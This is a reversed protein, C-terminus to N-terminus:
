AGPTAPGSGDTLVLGALDGRERWARLVEFFKMPGAPYRGGLFRKPDNPNGEGNNYGPTCEAMFAIQYPTWGSRITRVWEEEAEVSAEVARADRQLIRGLTWGLHEAQELLAHTLNVAIGTQTVGIFFCNPFGHAHMGHFTRLGDAWRESLRLGDRGVLDFGTARTYGTGIDFGTALVLCDLEYAVGDVIAARETIEQVGLGGTDVLTVNPRNFSELYEDHFGARKCQYRYYPMLGEATAPDRVVRRIRERIENMARLDAEEVAAVQEPAPSVGPGSGPWDNLARYLKTWGDDVEDRDPRDGSTWQTFNEMRRRQWGPEFNRGWGAPTPRNDRVGVTSPTRQFVYLHQAGRGLHPVVQLSTAGTGIIGVRKDGLGVLGGHTDGGSYAYDWRSTHFMQGRFREIGPIAPVRPRQLGGPAMVLFRADIRDGRDTSVRWRATDHHWVAGTIETQFLAVDYLSHHRAIRRLHEFIEPQHSYREQPIYGTEELYPLYISAEVDCQAGPYRNWYWTGGFDGAKDIVRFHTLGLARLQAAVLIGGIGAGLIVVDTKEDIPDRSFGPAVNPDRILEDLGAVERIQAQREARLRRDRERRYRERADHWNLESM